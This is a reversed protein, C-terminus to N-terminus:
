ARRQASREVGRRRVTAFALLVLAGLASGPSRPQPTIRCGCGGTEGALAPRARPPSAGEGALGADPDDGAGGNSATGGSGSGGGSTSGGVDAGPEGADAVNGGSGGTVASTGGTTSTGGTGGTTSTGGTGPDPAGAAGADGTPADDCDGDNEDIVGDCDNDAADSCTTAGPPGEAGGAAPTCDEVGLLCTSNAACAGVGCSTGVYDEDVVGDCDDDIGDCDTEADGTTGCPYECGNTPDQDLDVNGADCSEIACGGSQCSGTAHDPACAMGCGGCHNPDNEFGTDDFECGDDALENCDSFGLTCGTIVCVGSGCAGSGHEPACVNGCGGCHNPDTQFGADAYECGDGALGNCNSFGANCTGTTCTGSACVGAANAPACAVGCGGCNTADDVISTECVSAPPSCDATGAPCSSAVCTGSQCVENVGCRTTCDGCHNNDSQFGATAYECGDGSLSNCDAFGSACTGITCGGGVCAGTSHVPACIRGCSGCNAEDTPFGSNTYECGTAYARDCDSFGSSCSSITCAGASCRPTGNAVSCVTGCGGCSLIDRSNDQLPNYDDPCNDASDIIGDGDTDDDFATTTVNSELTFGNLGVRYELSAQNQYTGHAGLTVTVSVSGNEDDGLNQLDWTVVGSSFTGGNTASVFTSGAPIPDTIVADLATTPGENSYYLTFTLTASTTTDPAVKDLYILPQGAETACPAEFLSNLFLRAGQSGAHTSIPVDTDYEHGGLYSVKGIELCAEEQGEGDNAIDCTGDLYGTMWVDGIGIPTGKTTLMVIDTGKYVDGVPLSYAPESGGTTKFAGDLQAFPYDAHYFDVASPKSAILFGNPTLFHGHTPDNEFANVAQCEAFFHTPHGLFSRVEAVVEPKARADAVGWHMSMLQCYVPNGAADFLKGDAHNSTTMGAVENPDLMDPSSDPWNYNLTSDPIGAAQMYGRAIKQNGDAFMAITPATVLWRAVDIDISSTAVHVTTTHQAKWAQIIPLAAAADQEDVLWPGGRYGHGTVTPGSPYTTGNATFDVGGYAKGPRITWAVPVGNRLLEYVLGYAKLMGSDQYTTDMPIILSGPDFTRALAPRGVLGLAVLSTVAFGKKV